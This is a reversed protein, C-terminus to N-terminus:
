ELFVLARIFTIIYFAECHQFYLIDYVKLYSHANFMAFAEGPTQVEEQPLVVQPVHITSDLRMM